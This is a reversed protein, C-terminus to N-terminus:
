GLVVDREAFVASVGGLSCQHTGTNLGVADARHAVAFLALEAGFLIFAAPLLVAAILEADILLSDFWGPAGNM